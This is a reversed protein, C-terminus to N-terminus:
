KRFWAKLADWANGPADWVKLWWSGHLERAVPMPWPDHEDFDLNM